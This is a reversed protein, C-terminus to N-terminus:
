VKEKRNGRLVAHRRELGNILVKRCWRSVSVGEAQAAEAVAQKMATPMVLAVRCDQIPADAGEWLRKTEESLVM